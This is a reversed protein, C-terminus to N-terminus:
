PGKVGPPNSHYDAALRRSLAEIWERLLPEPMGSPFARHYLHNHLFEQEMERIVQRWTRALVELMDAGRALWQFPHFLLQLRPHGAKIIDELEEITYRLNSDAFYACHQTFRHGYMNVLGPVTFDEPRNIVWPALSPNHWSFVPSLEPLFGRSTEFDARIKASLSAADTAATDELVYHLGLDHGLQQIEIVKALGPYTLLNYLPSRLQFCFTAQAGLDADIQAFERAWGVSYDIDHRLYVVKGATEQNETFRGWRYGEARILELLGRYAEVTYM